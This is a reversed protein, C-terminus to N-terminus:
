SKAANYIFQSIVISDASKPLSIVKREFEALMDLTVSPQLIGAAKLMDIGTPNAAGPCDPCDTFGTDKEGQSPCVSNWIVILFKIASAVDKGVFPIKSIIPLAAEIIPLYTRYTNCDVTIYHDPLAALMTHLTNQENNSLGNTTM